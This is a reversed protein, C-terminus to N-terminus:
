IERGLGDPLELSNSGHIVVRDRRCPRSLDEQRLGCVLYCELPGDSRFGPLRLEDFRARCTTGAALIRVPFCHDHLRDRHPQYHWWASSANPFAGLVVDRESCQCSDIRVSDRLSLPHIGQHTAMALPHTPSPLLRVTRGRYHFHYRQVRAILRHWHTCPPCINDDHGYCREGSDFDQQPGLYIM